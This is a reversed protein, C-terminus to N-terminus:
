HDYRDKTQHPIWSNLMLIIKQNNFIMTKETQLQSTMCPATRRICTLWYTHIDPMKFFNEHNGM